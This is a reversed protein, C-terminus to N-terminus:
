EDFSETVPRGPSREWKVREEAARSLEDRLHRAEAENMNKETRLEFALKSLRDIEIQM